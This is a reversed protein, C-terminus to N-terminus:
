PNIEIRETLFDTSRRASGMMCVNYFHFRVKVTQDAPRDRGMVIMNRVNPLTFTKGPGVKTCPPYKENGTEFVDASLLMHKWEGSPLLIEPVSSILPEASVFIARDSTNRLTAQFTVFFVDEKMGPAGNDSSPKTNVERVTVLYSPATQGWLSSLSVLAIALTLVNGM